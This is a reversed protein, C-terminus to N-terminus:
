LSITGMVRCSSAALDPTDGDCRPRMSFPSRKGEAAIRDINPTRYGMVGHNYAGLNSWGIDDGFIVLINPRDQAGASLSLAASLLGTCLLSM